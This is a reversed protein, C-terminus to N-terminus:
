KYQRFGWSESSMRLRIWLGTFQNSPSVHGLAVTGGVDSVVEEVLVALFEFFAPEM